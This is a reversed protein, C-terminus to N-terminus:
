KDAIGLVLFLDDHYFCATFINFLAVVDKFVESKSIMVNLIYTKM